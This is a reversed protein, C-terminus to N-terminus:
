KRQAVADPERAPELPRTAPGRMVAGAPTFRSGHCPCDWSQEAQNWEIICGMHTCAAQVCHLNGERDRCVAVKHLGSTMIRGDGPALEGAPTSALRRGVLGGIAKGVFSMQAPQVLTKATRVASWPDYLDSWPSKGENVLDTLMLGAATGMTMGWARFGTATYVHPTTAGYRGVLPVEDTPYYDQTSWRYRLEDVGFERAYAEMAEFHPLTDSDEAVPHSEGAFVLLDQGEGSYPRVSRRPEDCNVYMGKVRRGGPGPAGAVVYERRPQMRMVYVAKENIPVNTAVLVHTARVEGRATSVRCPEGDTFSAVPTDEHIAAGMREAAEALALLHKRPHFHAQGDFRVAGLVDHPLETETTFEAPLGLSRCTEAEKRLKDAQKEDKTFVYSPASTWDAGAGLEKDLSRLTEQGRRNAEVHIEARRRGYRSVLGDYFLGHQLTAKATTKGSVGACVRGRELVVVSRGSKALHYAATLGVIGAGIVCADVSSDGDLPARSPAPATDIWLSVHRPDRAAAMPFALAAHVCGKRL